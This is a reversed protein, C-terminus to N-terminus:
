DSESANLNKSNILVNYNKLFELFNMILRHSHNIIKEARYILKQIVTKLRRRNATKRKPSEPGMLGRLGLWRLLNYAYQAIAMVLQSTAFKGLPLRVLDLDIKIESRFKETTSHERYLKDIEHRSFNDSPLSARWM